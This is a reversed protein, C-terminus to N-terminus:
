GRIADPAITGSASVGFRARVVSATVLVISLVLGVWAPWNRLLSQSLFALVTTVALGVALLAILMNDLAEQGVEFTRFTRRAVELLLLASGLVGAIVGVGHWETRAYTAYRVGTGLFSYSTSQQWDLLSNIVYLLSGALVVQGASPLRKLM